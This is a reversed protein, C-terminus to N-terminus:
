GELHLSLGMKRIEHGRQSRGAIGFPALKSAFQYAYNPRASAMFVKASFVPSLMGFSFFFIGDLTKGKNTALHVKKWEGGNAVMISSQHSYSTGFM